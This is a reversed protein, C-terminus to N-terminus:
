SHKHTPPQAGVRPGNNVRNVNAREILPPTSTATPMDMSTIM